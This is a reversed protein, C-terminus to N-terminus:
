DAPAEAARARRGMSWVAIQNTLLMLGTCIVLYPGLAELGAREALAGAVSPLIAFGVSAAGTQLGITNAAHRHGARRPADSTLTPFIASLSLGLLAIAVFGAATSRWLLLVASLLAGIMSLRLLREIGIRAAAAGFIFRGATLMAWFVSTIIGAMYASAARSETFLTFTWQGATTEVGTYLLFLLVSLWVIPLRLTEGIPAAPAGATDTTAHGMGRFTMFRLAPFFILGLALHVAAALVYGLRWGLGLGIVATMILPGVTAGVGFSAHMWNMTRVSRTAAVYINLATDILGSSWGTFLGLGVLIWWGPALAYGFLAVAALINASLIAWGLGFRALVKGALVSGAAFGITSTILLAALADLSLGFSARMSPWAVGLLSAVVGLAVFCAFSLLMPMRGKAANAIIM